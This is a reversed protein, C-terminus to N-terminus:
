RGGSVAITTGTVYAAADSLLWVIAAATEGATGARGLPVGAALRDVRGVDGASEHIETAILGPRVGNVRIRDPGLEKSLGITLTEIAGKSAGYDIFEGAGGLTAAMSSVNCIAGGTGGHRPAMMKVAERCCLFTGATNIAFTRNWRELGIEEFAGVRPLIGANNVLGDLRGHHSKIAAFIALVDDERAVDGALAEAAGGAARSAAGGAEAADRATRYNVVVRWGERAAALCTAAGIGRSGGTVLLVKEM